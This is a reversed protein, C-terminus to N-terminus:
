TSMFAHRFAHMFAHVCARGCMTAYGYHSMRARLRCLSAESDAGLRCCAGSLRHQLQEASRRRQHPHHQPSLPRRLAKGGFRHQPQHASRTRQPPRKQRIPPGQLSSGHIRARWAVTGASRRKPCSPTAEPVASPAPAVRCPSCSFLSEAFPSPVFPSMAAFCARSQVALTTSSRGGRVSCVGFKTSGAWSSTSAARCTASGIWFTSSGVGLKASGM